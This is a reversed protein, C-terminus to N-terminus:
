HKGLAPWLIQIVMCALRLAADETKRERRAEPGPAPARVRGQLVLPKPVQLELPRVDRLCTPEWNLRGAALVTPEGAVLGSPAALLALATVRTSKPIWGLASREGTRTPLARTFFILGAKIPSTM